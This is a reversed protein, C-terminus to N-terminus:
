ADSFEGNRLFGHWGCGGLKKGDKEALCNISPTLTPAERNGDWAWGAGNSFTQPRLAVMCEGRGRPCGFRLWKPRESADQGPSGFCFDGPAFGVFPKGIPWAKGKVITV